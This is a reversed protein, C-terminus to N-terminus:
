QSDQLSPTKRLVAPRCVPDCTSSNWPSCQTVESLKMQIRKQRELWRLAQFSVPSLELEQDTLSHITAQTHHASLSSRLGSTHM